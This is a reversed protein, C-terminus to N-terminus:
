EWIGKSKLIDTLRHTLLIDAPPIPYRTMDTLKVWAIRQGEAGHPTGTWRRCLYFPMVLHFRDYPYSAFSLPELDEERVEISLEERLERILACEPIEGDEMKGGPLEWVGAMNSGTPREALLLQGEENILAAAVGWLPPREEGRFQEVFDKRFLTYTIGPKKGIYGLSSMHNLGTQQFGLGEMIRRSPINDELAAGRLEEQHLTFFAFHAMARMAEKGYGQGWFDVGLWYGIEEELGVTGMLTQDSRRIVALVIHTGRRLGKQVYAIFNEADRLAYPHPIRATMEAIRSDNALATIASADGMEFPRLTLRETALPFFPRNKLTIPLM